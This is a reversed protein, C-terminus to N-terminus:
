PQVTWSAHATSGPRVEAFRTPTTATASWGDPVQLGLRLDRIRAATWPVRVTATATFAHGAQATDPTRLTVRTGPRAPMAYVHRDYGPSKVNRVRLSSAYSGYNTLSVQGLGGSSGDLNWVALAITNRGDPRLIGNPIPF